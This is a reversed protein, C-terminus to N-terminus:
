SVALLREEAIVWQGKQRRLLYVLLHGCVPGCYMELYVAAQTGDESYAIRSLGVLRHRPSPEQLTASPDFFSARAVLSTDVLGAPADLLASALDRPVSRSVLDDLLAARERLSADEALLRVFSRRVLVRVTTDRGGLEAALVSDYIASEVARDHAQRM